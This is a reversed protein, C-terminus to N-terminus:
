GCEPCCEGGTDEDYKMVAGCIPCSNEDTGGDAPKRDGTAYLFAIVDELLDFAM